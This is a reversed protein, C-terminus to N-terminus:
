TFWWDWQRGCRACEYSERHKEVPVATRLRHFGFWCWIKGLM